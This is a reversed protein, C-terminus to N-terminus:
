RNTKMEPKQHDNSPSLFFVNYSVLIHPSYLLLPFMILIYKIFINLALLYLFLIFIQKIFQIPKCWIKLLLM